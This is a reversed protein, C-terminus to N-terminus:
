LKLTKIFSNKDFFAEVLDANMIIHNSDEEYIDNALIIGIHKEFPHAMFDSSDVTELHFGGDYMPDMTNHKCKSVILKANVDIYVDPMTKIIGMDHLGAAIDKSVNERGNRMFKIEPVPKMNYMVHRANIPSKFGIVYSKGDLSLGVSQNGRRVVFVQSNLM